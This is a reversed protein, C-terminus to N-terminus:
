SGVLVVEEDVMGAKAFADWTRAGGEVLVSAIGYYDRVPMLLLQWLAAWEFVDDEIPVEITRVGCSLLEKITVDMDHNIVPGHMVITRSSHEDSAVNSELPIQLRADLIIRYPHLDRKLSDLRCDLVPNDKLITGIGVLIADHQSRVFTHSWINQDNSTIMLRSGDKNSVRGDRMMAKKLTIYPRQDNRVSIFGRNLRECSARMVPGIVEVGSSQLLEIGKGSVRTDPDQMGYVVHKIGRELIVDTCPPTKGTHCCPELNVYLVDDSKIEGDFTEFLAREAHAKGFAEHFGEAIIKRDRVLVAGVMPNTGTKGRGHEALELCQRM